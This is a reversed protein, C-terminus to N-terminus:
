DENSYEFVYPDTAIAIRLKGNGGLALPVEVDASAIRSLMLRQEYRYGLVEIPLEAMTSAPVTFSGDDTARVFLFKTETGGWGWSKVALYIQLYRSASGSPAWTITLAASTSIKSMTQEEPPASPPDFAVPSLVTLPEPLEADVDIDGLDAGGPWTFEVSDATAPLTLLETQVYLGSTIPPPDDDCGGLGADEWRQLSEYAQGVSVIGPEGADLGDIHWIAPREDAALPGVLWTEREARPM